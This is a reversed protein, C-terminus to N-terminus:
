GLFVMIGLQCNNTTPSQCCRVLERLPMMFSEPHDQGAQGLAAIVMLVSNM